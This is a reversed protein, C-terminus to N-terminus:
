LGAVTKRQRNFYYALQMMIQDALLGALVRQQGENQEDAAFNQNVINDYGNMARSIGSALVRPATDLTRLSWNGTAILRNFTTSDDPQIAIGESSISYAVTLSYRKAAAIHFRELRQQLAQRMLQGTRDPLIPVEIAAMEEPVFGDHGDAQPAYVPHFGCGGLSAAIGTLLARRRM